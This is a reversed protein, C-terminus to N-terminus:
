DNYVGDNSIRELRNMIEKCSELLAKKLADTYITDIEVPKILSKILPHYSCFIWKNYGSVLMGGHVQPLYESPVINSLLYKIHTHPLPCKLELGIKNDVDIADPSFGYGDESDIFGVKKFKYGTAFNIFELAEDELDNGRQMADSKYSNVSEGTILEAVKKNIIEESQKSRKGTSTLIKSFDSGTIKGLRIKFWEESGQECDIIKM